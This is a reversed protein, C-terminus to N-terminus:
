PGSPAEVRRRLETVGDPPLVQVPLLVLARAHQRLLVVGDREDVRRFAAYRTTGSGLSTKLWLGDPGLAAAVTSGAPSIRAIQQRARRRAHLAVLVVAVLVTVAGAVLGVADHRDVPRGVQLLAVVALALLALVVFRWLQLRVVVAAARGAYGDDVTWTRAGSPTADEQPAPGDPGDTSTM